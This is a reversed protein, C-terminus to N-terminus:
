EFTAVIGLRGSRRVLRLIGRVAWGILIVVGVAYAGPLAAEYWGSWNYHELAVGLM